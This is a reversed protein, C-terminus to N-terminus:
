LDLFFSDRHLSNGSESARTKPQPHHCSEAPDYTYGFQVVFRGPKAAQCAIVGAASSVEPFEM